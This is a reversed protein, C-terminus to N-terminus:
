HQLLAFFRMAPLTGECQNASDCILIHSPPCLLPQWPLSLKVKSITKLQKTPLVMNKYKFYFMLILKKIFYVIKFFYVRNLNQSLIRKVLQVNKFFFLCIEYYDGPFYQKKKHLLHRRVLPKDFSMSTHFYVLQPPKDVMQFNILETIYWILCHFAVMHMDLLNAFVIYLQYTGFKMCGHLLPYLEEWLPNVRYGNLCCQLCYRPGRTCIIFLISYHQM